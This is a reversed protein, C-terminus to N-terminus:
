HTIQKRLEVVVDLDLKTKESISQNDLGTKILNIAELTEAIGKLEGKEFLQQALTAVTDGLEPPLANHMAEILVDNNATTNLSSIIYDIMIKARARDEESWGSVAISDKVYQGFEPLHSLFERQMSYRMCWNLLSARKQGGIDMDAEVSIDVLNLPGKFLGEVKKGHEGFLNFLCREGKYAKEGNYYVVPFVYPLPLPNKHSNKAEKVHKDLIRMVDNLTRFAMIPDPTSYHEVLLFIYGEGGEKLEVKYLIDTHRARLDKDVFTGPVLVMTNLKILNLIEAPLNAEFLDKAMPMDFLMSKVFNDHSRRQPVTIEDMPAGNLRHNM